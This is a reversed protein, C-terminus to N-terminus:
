DPKEASHEEEDVANKDTRSADIFEKVREQMRGYEIMQMGGDPPAGHHGDGSEDIGDAVPGVFIVLESDQSIFAFILHFLL